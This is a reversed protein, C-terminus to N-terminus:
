AGDPREAPPDPSVSKAFWHEAYPSDNFPAVEQYGHRAYLRRAEVLAITAPRSTPAVLTVTIQHASV